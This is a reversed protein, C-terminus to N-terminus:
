SGGSCSPWDNLLTATEEHQAGSSRPVFLARKVRIGSRRLQTETFIWCIAYPQKTHPGIGWIQAQSCHVMLVNVTRLLALSNHPQAEALRRRQFQYSVNAIFAWCVMVTSGSPFLKM